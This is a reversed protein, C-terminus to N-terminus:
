SDLNELIKLFELPEPNDCDMMKRRETSITGDFIHFDSQVLTKRRVWSSKSYVSTEDQEGFTTMLTRPNGLQKEM